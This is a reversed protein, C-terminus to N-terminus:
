LFKLINKKLLKFDRLRQFILFFLTKFRYTWYLKSKKSLSVSANKCNRAYITLMRIMFWWNRDFTVGLLKRSPVESIEAKDPMKKSCLATDQGLKRAIRYPVFVLNFWIGFLSKMLNGTREKTGKKKNERGGHKNRTGRKQLMGGGEVVHVILGASISCSFQIRELVFNHFM